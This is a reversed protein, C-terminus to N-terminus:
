IANNGHLLKIEPIYAKIGQELTVKPYFDLDKISKKIDAQTSM